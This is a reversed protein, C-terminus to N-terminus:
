ETQESSMESSDTENSDSFIVQEFINNDITFNIKNNFFETDFINHMKQEFEIKKRAMKEDQDVFDQMFQVSGGNNGDNDITNLEGNRKLLTETHYPSGKIHHESEKKVIKTSLVIKDKSLCQIVIKLKIFNPPIGDSTTKCSFAEKPCILGSCQLVNEENVNDLTENSNSDYEKMEDVTLQNNISSNNQNTDSNEDIVTKMTRKKSMEDASQFSIDEDSSKWSPINIEIEIGIDKKGKKSPKKNKPPAERKSKITKKIPKPNKHGDSPEDNLSDPLTVIPKTFNQKKMRFVGKLRRAKDKAMRRKTEPESLIEDSNLKDFFDAVLRKIYIPTEQLFESNTKMISRSELSEVNQANNQPNLINDSENKFLTKINGENDMTQIVFMYKGSSPNDSESKRTALVENTLSLCQTETEIKIYEQPVAEVTSKCSHSKIPCIINDCKLRNETINSNFNRSSVTNNLHRDQKQDGNRKRMRIQEKLRRTAVKAMRRKVESGSVIQDSNLKEFFDSILQKIYEPTELQNSTNEKNDADDNNEEVNSNQNNRRSKKVEKSEHFLEEDDYLADTDKYDVYNDIEDLPKKYTKDQNQNKDNEVKYDPDNVNSASYEYEKDDKYNVDLDPHKDNKTKYLPANVNSSIHDADKDNKEISDLDVVNSSFYDLEENSELSATNKNNKIGHDPYIISSSFYDANGNSELTSPNKKNKEKGDSIQNRPHSLGHSNEVHKNSQGYMSHPPPSYLSNVFKFAPQIPSNYNPIIQSLFPLSVPKLKSNVRTISALIPVNLNINVSNQRSSDGFRKWNEDKVKTKEGIVFAVCFILFLKLLVIM